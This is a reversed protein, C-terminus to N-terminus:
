RWPYDSEYAATRAKAISEAWEIAEDLIELPSQEFRFVKIHNLDVLVEDGIMRSSGSEVPRLLAIITRQERLWVYEALHGAAQRDVMVTFRSAGAWLRVKQEVGTASSESLDEILHASYGHSGLYDRVSLLETKSDPSYSGLVIVGTAATVEFGKSPLRQRAYFDGEESGHWRALTEFVQWQLTSWVKSSNGVDDGHIYMALPIYRTALPGILEDNVGLQMFVNMIVNPPHYPTYGCNLFGSRDSSLAIVTTPPDDSGLNPMEKPAGVMAVQGLELAFGEPRFDPRDLLVVTDAGVPGRIKFDDGPGVSDEVVAVLCSNIWGLRTHAATMWRPLRELSLGEAAAESRLRSLAFRVAEKAAGAFIEVFAIITIM